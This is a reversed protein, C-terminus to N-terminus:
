IDYDKGSRVSIHGIDGGVGHIINPLKIYLRWLFLAWLFGSIIADGSAKYRSYWSMDLFPVTGGINYSGETDGLYIYIIPVSAGLMENKIVDIYDIIPTVWSFRTKISEVKTTVYDTSPVFIASIVDAISEAISAPLLRLNQGRFLM